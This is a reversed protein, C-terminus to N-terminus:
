DCRVQNGSLAHSRVFMSFSCCFAGLCTRGYSLQPTVPSIIYASLNENRIPISPTAIPVSETEFAPNTAPIKSIRHVLMRTGSTATFLSRLPGQTGSYIGSGTQGITPNNRGSALLNVNHTHSWGQQIQIAAFVINNTQYRYCWQVNCATIM